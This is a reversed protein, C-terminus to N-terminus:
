EQWLSSLFTGESSTTSPSMTTLSDHVGSPESPCQLHLLIPPIHLLEPARRLGQRRPVKGQKGTLRASTTSYPMTEQHCAKRRLGNLPYYVKTWTLDHIEITPVRFVNVVGKNSDSAVCLSFKFITTRIIQLAYNRIHCLTGWDSVHISTVIM